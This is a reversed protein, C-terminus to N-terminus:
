CIFYRDTIRDWPFNPGPDIKRGPAIDQHGVIDTILPYTEMLRDLCRELAAIQPEPWDDGLGVHEIGISFNNCSSRGQYKSVGAHWGKVNFPLLQFISGDKGIILHASVGSRKSTLWSLAGYLSNDGTYHIVVLEPVIVGGHNPSQKKNALTFWHNKIEGPSIELPM